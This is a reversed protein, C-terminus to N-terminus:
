DNVDVSRLPFTLILLHYMFLQDNIIMVLYQCCSCCLYKNLFMLTFYKCKFMEIEIMKEDYLCKHYCIVM